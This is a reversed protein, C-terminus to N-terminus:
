KSTYLLNVVEFCQEFSYDNGNEFVSKIMLDLWKDLDQVKIFFFIKTNKPFNFM